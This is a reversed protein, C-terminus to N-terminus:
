LILKSHKRLNEKNNGSLRTKTKVIELYVHLYKGTFSANCPVSLFMNYLMYTNYLVHVYLYKAIFAIACDKNGPLFPISMELKILMHTVESENEYETHHGRLRSSVAQFLANVDTHVSRRIQNQHEKM